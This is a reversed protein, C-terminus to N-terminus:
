QKLRFKQEAIKSMNWLLYSILIVGILLGLYGMIESMEM